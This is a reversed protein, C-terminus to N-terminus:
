STGPKADTGSAAFQANTGARVVSVASIAPDHSSGALTGFVPHRCERRRDVHELRGCHEAADHEAATLPHSSTDSMEDDVASTTFWATDVGPATVAVGVSVPAAPAAGGPAPVSAVFGYAPATLQGASVDMQARVQLESQEPAAAAAPPTLPGTMSALHTGGDSDRSRLLVATASLSAGAATTGALLVSPTMGGGTAAPLARTWAERARKILGIDGALPGRVPGQTVAAATQFQEPAGGGAATTLVAAAGLALVVAAAAGGVLTRQRRRARTQLVRRAM